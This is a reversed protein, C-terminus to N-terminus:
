YFLFSFFVLDVRFLELICLCFDCSWRDVLRGNLPIPNKKAGDEEEPQEWQSGRDWRVKEADEDRVGVFRLYTSASFVLCFRLGWSSCLAERKVRCRVQHSPFILSPGKELMFEMNEKWQLSWACGTSWPFAMFAASWKTVMYLCLFGLLEILLWAWESIGLKTRRPHVLASSHSKNPRLWLCYVSILVM